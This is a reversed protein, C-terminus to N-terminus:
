RGRILWYVAYNDPTTEKGSMPISGDAANTPESTTISFNHSHASGGSSIPNQDTLAAFSGPIQTYEDDHSGGGDDDPSKGFRWNHGHAGDTDTSGSATHRHKRM